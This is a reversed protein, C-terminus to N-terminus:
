EGKDNEWKNQRLDGQVMVQSGKDLYQCCSEAQKGWVDVDFFHAEEAKGNWINNALSLTTVSIKDAGVSRLEPKSVLRGSVAVTNIDAM